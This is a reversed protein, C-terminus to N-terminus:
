RHVMKQRNCFTMFKVFHEPQHLLSSSQHVTPMVSLEQSMATNSHINLVDLFKNELIIICIFICRYNSDFTQPLKANNQKWHLKGNKPM